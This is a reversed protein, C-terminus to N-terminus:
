PIEILSLANIEAVLSEVLYKVSLNKGSLAISKISSAALLFRISNSELGSFNSSNSLFIICSLISFFTNDLSFSISENSSQILKVKSFNFKISNKTGGRDVNDKQLGKKDSDKKNDGAENANITYEKATPFFLKQEIGKVM